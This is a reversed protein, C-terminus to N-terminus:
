PNVEAWTVAINPLRFKWGYTMLKSRVRVLVNNRENEDFIAVYETL